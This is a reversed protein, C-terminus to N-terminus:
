NFPHNTYLTKLAKNNVHSEFPLRPMLFAKLHEEYVEGFRGSTGILFPENNILGYRLYPLEINQGFQNLTTLTPINPTIPKTFWPLEPAEQNNNSAM